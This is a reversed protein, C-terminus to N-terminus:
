LAEMIGPGMISKIEGQIKKNCVGIYCGGHLTKGDITIERPKFGYVADTGAATSYPIIRTKYLNINFDKLLEKETLIVPLGSFPEQLNCGTDLATDFTYRDNNSVAVTVKYIRCNLKKNATMRQYVSMILYLVGTAIILVIPSIDFYLQNNYIFVGTPKYALNITMVLTSLIMSSGLFLLIRITTKQFSAKGFTTYIIGATIGIKCLASLFISKIPLIVTLTSIGGVLAGLIIRKGNVNIHLASKILCLLIYDIFLNVCILTDIYITQM